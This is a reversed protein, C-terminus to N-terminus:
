RKPVRRELMEPAVRRILSEQAEVNTRLKERVVLTENSTRQVRDSLSVIQKRVQPPTVPQQGIAKLRDGLTRLEAELKTVSEEAERTQQASDRLEWKFGALEASTFGAKTLVGKMMGPFVLFLILVLVIVAERVSATASKFTEIANSM